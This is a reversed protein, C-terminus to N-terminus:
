EGSSPGSPHGRESLLAQVEEDSVQTFDEYFMGVAWFYAPTMLCVVRDAEKELRHVAEPPAVPVAVIIERPNSGRLTRVTALMTSGTALGDDVVIVRKGELPIPPRGGRYAMSRRRVEEAQRSIERDLYDRSIRLASIAEDDLVVSGDSGIAGIALEPNGPAGLKRTIAVDLPANLAKAVEDAVEVGGRPIGLVVVDRADKLDALAEALKRGAEKRNKFRKSGFRDWFM